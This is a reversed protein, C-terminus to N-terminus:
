EEKQQNNEAEEKGDKQQNEEAQENEGAELRKKDSNDQIEEQELNEPKYEEFSPLKAEFNLFFKENLCVVARFEYSMLKRFDESCKYIWHKLLQIMEKTDGFVAHKEPLEEWNDLSVELELENFKMLLPGAKERLGFGAVEDLLGFITFVFSPTTDFHVYADLSRFWSLEGPVQNNKQISSADAFDHDSTLSMELFAEGPFPEQTIPLNLIAEAGKLETLDIKHWRGDESEHTEINQVGSSRLASKLLEESNKAASFIWISTGDVDQKTSNQIQTKLSQCDAENNAGRVKLYSKQENVSGVKLNLYLRQHEEM